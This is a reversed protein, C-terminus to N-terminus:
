SSVRAESISPSTVTSREVGYFRINGANEVFFVYVCVFTNVRYNICVTILACVCVYLFMLDKRIKLELPWEKLAPWEFNM